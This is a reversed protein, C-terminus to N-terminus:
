IQWWRESLLLSLLFGEEAFEFGCLLLMMTLTIGMKAHDCEIVYDELPKKIHVNERKLRMQTAHCRYVVGAYIMSSTMAFALAHFMIAQLQKWLIFSSVLPLTHLLNCGLLFRFVLVSLIGAAGKMCCYVWCSPASSCFYTTVICISTNESGHNSCNCLLESRIVDMGSKCLQDLAMACLLWSTATITYKLVSDRAVLCKNVWNPDMQQAALSERHRREKMELELSRLKLEVALRQNEHDRRSQEQLGSLHRQLVFDHAHKVDLGQQHFIKTTIKIKEALEIAENAMDEVTLVSSSSTMTLTTTVVDPLTEESQVVAISSETEHCPTRARRNMSEMDQKDRPEGILHPEMTGTEEKSLPKERTTRLSSCKTETSPPADSVALKQRAPSRSTETLKTSSIQRGRITKVVIAAATICACVILIPLGVAHNSSQSASTPLWYRSSPIFEDDMDWHSKILRPNRHDKYHRDRM